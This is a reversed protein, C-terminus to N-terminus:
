KKHYRGEVVSWDLITWFSNVYDARRNRYDIYYSHEWVDCCMLPTLEKTLPNGGNPENVISLIGKDNAALWTWGSGFVAMASKNFAEKFADFSGFDRNIAEALAGTPALKANPSFTAFFINHNLTQAANNFIPGDSKKVIDELTMNEYPTGPILKNLNDVYAQHHKVHHYELTERSMAPELADNAYPLAPLLHTM